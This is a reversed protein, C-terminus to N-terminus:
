LATVAGRIDEMTVDRSLQAAGIKPAVVFRIEGHEFKKDFKLAEFIKERPFDKSLKTPLNFKALLDIISDRDKKSLGARKMSIECAAVM